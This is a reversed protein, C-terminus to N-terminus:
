QSHVLLLIHKWENQNLTFKWSRLSAVLIIQSTVEWVTSITLWACCHELSVSRESRTWSDLRRMSPSQIKRMTLVSWRSFLFVSSVKRPNYPLEIHLATLQWPTKCAVGKVSLFPRTMSCGDLQQQPVCNNFVSLLISVDALCTTVYNYEM